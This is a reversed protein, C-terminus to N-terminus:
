KGIDRYSPDHISIVETVKKTQSVLRLCICNKETKSPGDRDDPTLEMPDVPPMDGAFIRSMFTSAREGTSLVIRHVRYTKTENSGNTGVLITWDAHKQGEPDRWAHKPASWGQMSQEEVWGGEDLDM